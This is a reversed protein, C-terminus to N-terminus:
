EGDAKPFQVLVAGFRKIRLGALGDRSVGIDIDGVERPDEGAQTVTWCGQRIKIDIRIRGLPQRRHAAVIEMMIERRFGQEVADTQWGAGRAHWVYAGGRQEVDIRGDVVKEIM